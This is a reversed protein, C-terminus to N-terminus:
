FSFAFVPIFVLISLSIYFGAPEGIFSHYRETGLGVMYILLGDSFMQVVNLFIPSIRGKDESVSVASYGQFVISLLLLIVGTIGEWDLPAGNNGMGVTFLSGILNVVLSIIEHM